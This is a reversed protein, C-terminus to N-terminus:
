TVPRQHEVVPLCPKSKRRFSSLQEGQSKPKPSHSFKKSQQSRVNIGSDAGMTDDFARAFQRLQFSHLINRLMRGYWYGSDVRRIAKLLREINLHLVDLSRIDSDRPHFAM